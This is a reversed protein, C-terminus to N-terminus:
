GLQGWRRRRPGRPGGGKRRRPRSPAARRHVVGGRGRSRHPRRRLGECPVHAPAEGERHPDLERPGSDRDDRGHGVEGHQGEGAERTPGVKPCAGRFQGKRDGPLNGTWSESRWRRWCPTPSHRGRDGVARAGPSVAEGSWPNDAQRLRLCESRWRCRLSQQADADVSGGVGREVRQAGNRDPVPSSPRWRGGSSSLGAAWGSPSWAPRRPARRRPPASCGTTM